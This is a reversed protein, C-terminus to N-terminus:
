GESLTMEQYNPAQLGNLKVNDVRDSYVFQNTYWTIPIVGMDEFLIREADQWAANREDEDATESATTSAEDFAENSYRGLNDGDVGSTRFLSYMGNYYSPYDWIWGARCLNCGGEKKMEDFYTEGELPTQEVKLGVAELNEQIITMVPEHDGGLNFQLKIPEMDAAKGWEEVLAAAADEDYTCFEGCLGAEFGPIGPPTVGSAQPRAGDYVQDNIRERDIAMSIAQRVALNEEGGLQEDEWAIGLYYLGFSLDTSNNYTDTSTAFTGSPIPATDADGGEFANYAAQLDASIRFEINAIGPAEGTYTENATVKIVEDDVWVGDMKYPGNGIMEGREWENIEDATTASTAEDPLPSFVPHSVIAPWDSLPGTLTVTLTGAEDDAVVGALEDAEGEFLEQAGEIPFYHYSLTSALETNLAREWSKKFTTPTIAEGNSFVADDALTFTWESSDDNAEWETAVEPQLENDADIVTLGDYVLETITSGQRTDATAPDIHNPNDASLANYDILTDAPLGEGTAPTGDEYKTTKSEPLEVGDVEQSGGGGGGGGGGDGGGESESGGCASALLALTFVLGLLKFSRQNRRM